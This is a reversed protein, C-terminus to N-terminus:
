NAHQAAAEDFQRALTAYKEAAKISDAAKDLVMQRMEGTLDSAWTVYGEARELEAAADARLGAARLELNTKPDNSTQM